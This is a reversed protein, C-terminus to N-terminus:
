CGAVCTAAADFSMTKGSLPVHVPVESAEIFAATRTEPLVVGNRTAEENAHSPIVSAPQVLENIVYAAERPGTTFVDGINMVVLKAGYHGRVVLDQEATIGTDGSLYVVLGNSFTLVYGTPPGVDGAIGAERMMEALEGGIFDPGLGNSHAAPVTTISVGGVNRNGGFRVGLSKAPDGGAAELRKAFFAPMESGTVITAGKAVAIEVSNSHPTTSVSADPEACTGANVAPLRRDGVHDGHVHSVLVIDIRGLRPDDAGAVTRGVDYLIRTGNPDEFVFARDMACFEGEQGGLSTVLVLDAATAPSPTLAAAFPILAFATAVPILSRHM